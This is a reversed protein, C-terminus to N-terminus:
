ALFINRYCLCFLASADPMDRFKWVLLVAKAGHVRGDPTRGYAGVASHRTHLPCRTHDALRLLKTLYTSSKSTKSTRSAQCKSRLRQFRIWRSNMGQSVNVCIKNKKYVNQKRTLCAGMRYLCVHPCTLSM